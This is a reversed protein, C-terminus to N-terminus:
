FIKLTGEFYINWAALILLIVLVGSFRADWPGLGRLCHVRTWKKRITWSINSEFAADRSFKILM